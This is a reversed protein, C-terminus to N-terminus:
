IVEFKAGVAKAAKALWTNVLKHGKDSLLANHTPFCTEPKINTIFDMAESVKLWPASAPVALTKIPIKPLVFSDGPYYFDGNDVIVGLNPPVPFGPCIVLHEGGVFKLSFQGCSATQGASVTRKEAAIDSLQGIVSVHAFICISPNLDIIQKIKAKDLHDAHEHTIVLGVVDKPVEFDDSWNGPDIVLSQANKTLVLCAHM